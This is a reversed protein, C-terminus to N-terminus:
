PKFIAQLKKADKPAAIAASRFMEKGVENAERFATLIQLEEQTVYALSIDAYSSHGQDSVLAKDPPSNTPYQYNSNQEASLWGDPLNFAAEIQSAAVNGINRTFKKGLLQSVRSDTLGVKRAFNAPGDVSAVLKRANERRIDDLKGM